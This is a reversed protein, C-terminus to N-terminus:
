WPSNVAFAAVDPFADGVLPPYINALYREVGDRQGAQVAAWTVLLGFSSYALIEKDSRHAKLRAAIDGQGPRVLRGPKGDKGNYWIAYVGLVKVESLDVTEFPCYVGGTCRVWNLTLM